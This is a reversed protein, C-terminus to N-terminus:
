YLCHALVPHVSSSQIFLFSLSQVDYRHDATVATVKVSLTQTDSTRTSQRIKPKLDLEAETASARPM